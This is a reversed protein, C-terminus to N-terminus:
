GGSIRTFKYIDSWDRFFINGLLYSQMEMQRLHPDHQTYQPDNTHSHLNGHENQWHHIYEHAFSRLIDKPHRDIVYLNITNTEHDYYGTKGLMDKSNETNYILKVKPIDKIPLVKKLYVFLSGLKQKFEPTTITKSQQEAFM